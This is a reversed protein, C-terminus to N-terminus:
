PSPAGFTCRCDPDPDADDCPPPCGPVGPKTDCANNCAVCTLTNCPKHSQCCHNSACDKNQTCAAGPPLLTVAAAPTPAVITTILPVAAAAAGVTAARRVLDRRSVGPQLVAPRELLGREELQELALSVEAETVQEGLREGALAAIRERPTRGDCCGFVSAALSGLCHVQKTDLDYVVTEDGVQETLFGDTRAQPLRSDMQHM